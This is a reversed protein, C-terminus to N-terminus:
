RGAKRRLVSVLMGTEALEYDDAIAAYVSKLRQLRDVKEIARTLYSSQLYPIPQAPRLPVASCAICSDVILLEPRRRKLDSIVLELHETSNLFTGIEFHPMGSYREALFLLISDFESLIFVPENPRVSKDILATAEAFPVPDMTSRAKLRQFDWDYLQHARLHVITDLTTALLHRSLHAWLLLSLTLAVWGVQRVRRADVHERVCEHWVAAVAFAAYPYVKYLHGYNPVALWYFLFMSAYAILFIALSKSDRAKRAISWVTVGAVVAIATLVAAILFGSIPFGWVGDIFQRAYPNPASLEPIKFFGVLTWLFLLAGAGFELRSRRALGTMSRFLLTGALAVGCFSGVFHDLFLNGAAALLAVGLLATRGHRLYISFTAIVALDLAHRAPGYGFGSYLTTLGLGQVSGIVVLAVGFTTFWSKFLWHVLALLAIFYLGMIAFMTALYAQFTIGGFVQMVRGVLLYNLGYPAIIENLRRGLSWEKIPNLYQFHHHFVLELDHFFSIFHTKNKRSFDYVGDPVVSERIKLNVQYNAAAVRYIHERQNEFIRALEAVDADDLKGIFCLRGTPNHIYYTYRRMNAFGTLLPGPPLEFYNGELCPPDQQPQKRLDPILHNGWIRQTNIYDIKDVLHPVAHPGEQVTLQSPIQLYDSPIPLHNSGLFWLIALFQGVILGFATLAARTSLIKIKFDPVLPLVIGLGLSAIIVVLEAPSILIIFGISLLAAVIATLACAQLLRSRRTERLANPQIVLGTSVLLQLGLMVLGIAFGLIAFKHNPFYYPQIWDFYRIPALKLAGVDVLAGFAHKVAPLLALVCYVVICAHLIALNEFPWSRATNIIWCWIRQATQLLRALWNALVHAQSSEASPIGM